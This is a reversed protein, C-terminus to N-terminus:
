KKQGGSAAMDELTPNAARQLARVYHIVAWRDEPPVQTAYSPMLNQGRTIVHFINGDPWKMVKDSLLSPPRPYPPVVFGQGDGKPGHCVICYTNFVKQGRDLVSKTRMLPNKLAAGAKDGENVAYHYPEYGRPVTGEPPVRAAAGDKSNPDEKQAKFHTSWYMDPMFEWSPTSKECATLLFLTAIMLLLIKM